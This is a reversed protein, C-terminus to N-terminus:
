PNFTKGFNYGVGIRGRMIRTAFDQIEFEKQTYSIQTFISLDKYLYRVGITPGFLLSSNVEGTPLSGSGGYHFLYDHIYDVHVGANVKLPPSIEYSLGLSLLFENYSIEDIPFQLHVYKSYDALARRVQSYGADLTMSYRHNLGVNIKAGILYNFPLWADEFKIIFAERGCSHSGYFGVYPTLEIQAKVDLSLVVYSTFLLIIKLKLLNKNM